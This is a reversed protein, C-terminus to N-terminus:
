FFFGLLVAIQRSRRVPWGFNIPDLIIFGWCYMPLLLPFLNRPFQGTCEQCIVPEQVEGRVATWGLFHAHAHEGDTLGAPSWATCPTGAIHFM